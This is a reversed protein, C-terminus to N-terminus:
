RVHPGDGRSDTTPQDHDDSEHGEGHGMGRMMVYMLLPCAVILVLLGLYVAPLGAIVLAVLVAGAILAPKVMQQHNM